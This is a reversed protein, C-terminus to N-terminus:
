ASQWVKIGTLSAQITYGEYIEGDVQFWADDADDDMLQVKFTKALHYDGTRSDYGASAGKKIAKLFEKVAALPKDKYKGTLGEGKLIVIDGM